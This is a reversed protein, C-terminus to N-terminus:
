GQAGGGEWRGRGSSTGEQREMLPSRSLGRPGVTGEWGQAGGPPM